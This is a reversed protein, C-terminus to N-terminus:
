SAHRTICSTHDLIYPSRNVQYTQLCRAMLRRNNEAMMEQVQSDMQLAEKLEDEVGAKESAESERAEVGVRRAADGGSGVGVNDSMDGPPSNSDGRSNAEAGDKNEGQWSTAAGANTKSGAAEAQRGTISNSNSNSKEMQEHDQMIQDLRTLSDDLDQLLTERAHDAADVADADTGTHSVLGDGEKESPRDEEYRHDYSVKTHM